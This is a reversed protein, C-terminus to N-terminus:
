RRWAGVVLRKWSTTELFSDALEPVSPDGFVTPPCERELDLQQERAFCSVDAAPTGDYTDAALAARVAPVCQSAEVPQQVRANDCSGGAEQDAWRHFDSDVFPVQAPSTSM